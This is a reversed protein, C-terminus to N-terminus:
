VSEKKNKLIDDIISTLWEKQYVGEKKIEKQLFKMPERSCKEKLFIIKRMFKVFRQKESFRNKELNLNSKIYKLYTDLSSLVQETNDLYYNLKILYIRIMAEQVNYHFKVKSIQSLAKEYDNSLFYIYSLSLNEYLNVYRKELLPICVAMMKKITAADELIFFFQLFVFYLKPRFFNVNEPGYLKKRIVESYLFNVEKVYIPNKTNQFINSYMYGILHTFHSTLQDRTLFRRYKYVVKKFDYYYKIDKDSIPYLDMLKQLIVINYYYKNKTQLLEILEPQFLKAAINKIYTSYEADERSNGQFYLTVIEELTLNMLNITTSYLLDTIKNSHNKTKADKYGQIYNISYADKLYSHWLLFTDMESEDIVRDAHKKKNEFLDKFRMELFKHLLMIEKQVKNKKSMEVYLFEEALKHLQSMLDNFTNSNFRKGPYLKEFANYKSIKDGYKKIVRFLEVPKNRTNFYPSKLFTEFLTLEETTLSTIISYAKYNVM